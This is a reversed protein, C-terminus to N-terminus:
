NRMRMMYCNRLLQVPGVIVIRVFAAQVGGPEPSAGRVALGEQIWKLDMWKLFHTICVM